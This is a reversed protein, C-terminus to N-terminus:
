GTKATPPSIGLDTAVHDYHVPKGVRERLLEVLDAAGRWFALYRM